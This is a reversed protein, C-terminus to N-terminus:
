VLSYVRHHSLLVEVNGFSVTLNPSSFGRSLYPILDLSVFGEFISQILLHNLLIKLLFGIILASSEKQSSIGNFLLFLKVSICGGSDLIFV